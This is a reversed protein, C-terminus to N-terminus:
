NRKMAALFDRIRTANVGRDGRGVRSRSRLDVVSQGGAARVRLVVDDEFGFVATRALAQIVGKARDEATITWGKAVLLAKAREFAADVPISVTAPALDPYTTRHWARLDDPYPSGAAPGALFVPPDALDTAVDNHRAGPASLLSALVAVGALLPIAASALASRVGARRRRLRYLGLGAFAFGVILGVAGSAAFLVFGALPSVVRGAAAAGIALGALVIAAPMWWFRTM